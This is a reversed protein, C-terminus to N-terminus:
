NLWDAHNHFVPHFRVTDNAHIVNKCIIDDAYNTGRQHERVGNEGDGLWLFFLTNSYYITAHRIVTTLRSFTRFRSMFCLM